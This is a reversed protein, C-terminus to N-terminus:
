PPPQRVVTVSFAPPSPRPHLRIGKAIIKLAEWHIGGVVKLALMPHRLFTALLNPNSLPQRTGTFNATILPGEADSGRVTLSVKTGPPHVTFDCDMAMAMFPSVHFAKACHQRIPPTADAAVEILYSHRQGFTNNVEYLLAALSGDPRHCFFTSIPNFVYGLVRPYCLLRIAGGAPIGAEALRAEIQTKLRRPSRDGHDAQYFSLLNFRDLSFWRFRHALIDLEDLDLLMMYVRYALAHRRPRARAHTVRGPYLASALTM